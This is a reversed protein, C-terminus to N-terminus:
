FIVFSNNLYFIADQPIEDWVEWILADTLDQALVWCGKSPNSKPGPVFPGTSPM